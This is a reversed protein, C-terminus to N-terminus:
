YPLTTTHRELELKLKGQYNQIFLVQLASSLFETINSNKELKKPILGYYISLLNRQIVSFRYVM